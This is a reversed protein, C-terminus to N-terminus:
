MGVPSALLLVGPSNVWSGQEQKAAHQDEPFLERQEFLGM